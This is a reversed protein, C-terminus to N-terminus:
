KGTLMVLIAHFATSLGYLLLVSGFCLIVVVGTLRNTDHRAPWHVKKMETVTDQWFGKLGRKSKPIPIHSPATIEPGKRESM